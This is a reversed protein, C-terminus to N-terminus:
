TIRSRLSTKRCSTYETFMNWPVSSHFLCLANTTRHEELVRNVNELKESIEYYQKSIDEFYSNFEEPTDYPLSSFDCYQPKIKLNVAMDHIKSYVGLYPNQENLNRLVAGRTSIQFRHSTCCAMLASDLDNISGEISLLSMKEIGM